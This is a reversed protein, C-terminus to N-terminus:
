RKLLGVFMNMLRISGSLIGTPYYGFIGLWHNQKNITAEIPLQYIERIVSPNKLCDKLIDQRYLITDIEDTGSLLAARAIDLVFEDGSAMAEFLTNLELDQVLTKEQVPLPRLPDFDLDRFMLFAKM